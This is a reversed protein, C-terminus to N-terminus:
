VTAFFDVGDKNQASLVWATMMQEALAILAKAKSSLETALEANGAKKAAKVDVELRVAEDIYGRIQAQVPDNMDANWNVEGSKIRKIPNGNYFHGDSDVMYLKGAPLHEGESSIVDTPPVAMKLEVGAKKSIMYDVGPVMSEYDCPIREGTETIIEYQKGAIDAPMFSRDETGKQAALTGVDPAEGTAPDAYEGIYEPRAEKVIGYTVQLCNGTIDQRGPNWPTDVYQTGTVTDYKLPINNSNNEVLSNELTGETSIKRAVVPASQNQTIVIGVKPNITSSNIQHIHSAVPTELTEQPIEEFIDMTTGNPRSVVLSSKVGEGTSPIYRLPGYITQVEKSQRVGNQMALVTAAPVLAAAVAPLVKEVGKEVIKQTNGFALNSQIPQNNLKMQYNTAINM